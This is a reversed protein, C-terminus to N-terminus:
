ISLRFFQGYEHATDMLIMGYGPAKLGDIEFNKGWDDTGWSNRIYYVGKRTFKKYTGDKMSAYYSIERETDYGVVLVSHGGGDRKARDYSGKEPYTIVGGDWLEPSTRINYKTGTDYNWAGYYFDLDLTLPVGRYLSEQIETVREVIGDRGLNSLLFADRHRSAEDRATKFEPDYNVSNPNLLEEDGIKLLVPDRHSVLCSRLAMGRKLHGCRKAPLGERKSKWVDISYPLAAETPQGWERLLKFNDPSESGEESTEQTTLYQLWEESLDVGPAALHNIMLMAEFLATASFISCTGREAQNKAPSLLRILSATDSRKPFIQGSNAVQIQDVVPHKLNRYPKDLAPRAWAPISAILLMCIYIHRM